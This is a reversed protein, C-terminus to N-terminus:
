GMRRSELVVQTENHKMPNWQTQNPKIQNLQTENPKM